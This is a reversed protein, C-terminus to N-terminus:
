YKWRTLVFFFFKSERGYKIEDHQGFESQKQATQAGQVKRDM